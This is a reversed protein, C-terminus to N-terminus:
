QVNIKNAEGAADINLNFGVKGSCNNGRPMLFAITDKFKNGDYTKVLYKGGNQLTGSGTTVKAIPKVPEVKPEKGYTTGAPLCKYTRYGLNPDSVDALFIQTNAKVFLSDGDFNLGKYLIVECHPYTTIAYPYYHGPYKIKGADGMDITKVWMKLYGQFAGCDGGGYIASVKTALLALPALANILKM